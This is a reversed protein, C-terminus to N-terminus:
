LPHGDHTTINDLQWYRCFDEIEYDELDRNFEGTINKANRTLDLDNGHVFAAAAHYRTSRVLRRPGTKELSVVGIRICRAAGGLSRGQAVLYALASITKNAWRRRFLRASRRM